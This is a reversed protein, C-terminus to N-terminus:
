GFALGFVGVNRFCGDHDTLFPLYKQSLAGFSFAPCTQPIKWPKSDVTFPWQNDTVFQDGLDVVLGADLDIGASQELGDSMAHCTVANSEIAVLGVVGSPPEARGFCTGKAPQWRRGEAFQRETCRTARDRFNHEISSM